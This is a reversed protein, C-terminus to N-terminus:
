VFRGQSIAILLICAKTPTLKTTESYLAFMHMFWEYKYLHIISM